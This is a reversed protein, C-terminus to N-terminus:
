ELLSILNSNQRKGRGLLIEDCPGSAPRGRVQVKFKGLRYVTSLAHTGIHSATSEWVKGADRLVQLTTLACAAGGGARVM